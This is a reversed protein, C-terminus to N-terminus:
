DELKKMRKLNLSNINYGDAYVNPFGNIVEDFLLSKSYDFIIYESDSRKLFEEFLKLDYFNASFDLSPHDIYVDQSFLFSLMNDLFENNMYETGSYFYEKVLYHLPTYKKEKYNTYNRSVYGDFSKNIDAGKEIFVKAELLKEKQYYILDINDKNKPMYLNLLEKWINQFECTPDM